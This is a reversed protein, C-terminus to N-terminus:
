ANGGCDLCRVGQVGRTWWVPDGVSVRRDCSTCQGRYMSVIRKSKAPEQPLGLEARPACYAFADCRACRVVDNNAKREVRGDAGGCKACPARMTIERPETM